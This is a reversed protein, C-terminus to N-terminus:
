ILNLLSISFMPTSIKYSDCNDTAITNKNESSLPHFLFKVAVFLKLNFKKYLKKEPSVDIKQRKLSVMCLSRQGQTQLTKILM